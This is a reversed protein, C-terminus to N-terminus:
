SAPSLVKPTRGILLVVVEKVIQVIVSKLWLRFIQFLLVYMSWQIHSFASMMKFLMVSSSGRTRSQLVGGTTHFESKM